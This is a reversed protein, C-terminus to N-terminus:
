RMYEKERNNRETQLIVRVGRGTSKKGQFGVAGKRQQPEEGFNKGVRKRRRIEEEAPALGMKL